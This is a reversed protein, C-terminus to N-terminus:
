VFFRSLFFFVRMAIVGIVAGIVTWFLQQFLSVDMLGAATWFVFGGLGAGIANFVWYTVRTFKTEFRTLKEDIEFGAKMLEEHKKQIDNETM